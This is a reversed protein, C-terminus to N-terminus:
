SNQSIGLLFFTIAMVLFIILWYVCAIVLIWKFIKALTKLTRTEGVVVSKANKDSPNRKLKRSNNLFKILWVCSAIILFWVTFVLLTTAIFNTETKFSNGPISKIIEMSPFTLILSVVIIISIYIVRTAINKNKGEQSYM